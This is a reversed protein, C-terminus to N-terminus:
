SSGHQLLYENELRTERCRGGKPEIYYATADTRSSVVRHLEGDVYHLAAGDDVGYGPLLESTAVMHKYGPRRM